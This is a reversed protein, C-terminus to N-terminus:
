RIKTSIETAPMNAQGAESKRKIYADLDAATVAGVQRAVLEGAPSLIFTTPLVLLNGFPTEPSTDSRLVTYKM